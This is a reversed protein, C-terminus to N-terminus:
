LSVEVEPEPEPEAEVAQESEPQQRVLRRRLELIMAPFEHQSPGGADPARYPLAELQELRNRVDVSARQQEEEKEFQWGLKVAVMHSQSKISAHLLSQDSEYKDLVGSTLLLLVVTRTDWQAADKDGHMWTFADGLHYKINDLMERASTENFIVHVKVTTHLGKSTPRIGKATVSADSPLVIKSRLCLERMMAALEYDRRRYTVAKDLYTNVLTCIDTELQVHVDKGSTTRIVIDQQAKWQAKDFPSFREDEEIVLQVPKDLRIAERMEKRCYESLLYHKSLIVVFIDSHQVGSLMGALTLDQQRVDLWTHLGLKQYEHFLTSAVGSSDKQAHSLFAHYRMPLRELTATQCLFPHALMDSVSPRKKADGKLCRRILDKADAIKSLDADSHHLVPVLEEDSITNWTCLRIKDSFEVLQDNSTDQAFLSRGSCLEFLIVGLSWVDFKKALESDITQSQVPQTVIFRALEPPAYASIADGQSIADGKAEYISAISITGTHLDHSEDMDCVIWKEGNDDPNSRLVNRQKLDAHLINSLHLDVVCHLIDRFVKTVREIDYGALREKACTDHLSREGRQLVLVYPYEDLPDATSTSSPCTREPEEQQEDGEQAVTQEPPMHWAIIEVVSPGLDHALRRAIEKEFKCRDKMLKLCVDSPPLGSISGRSADGVTNRYYLEDTAYHVRAAGSTHVPPGPHVTYRQLFSNMSRAWTRISRSKSGGTIIDRLSRGTDDQLDLGETSQEHREIARVLYKLVELDAKYEVAFDLAHRGSLTLSQRFIATAADTERGRGLSDRFSNRLAEGGSRLLCTHPAADVLIQVARVSPRNMLVNHLALHGDPDRESCTPKDVQDVDVLLQLVADSVCDRSAYHLPLQGKQDRVRCAAPFQELLLQVVKIGGDAPMNKIALHLPLMGVVEEPWECAAPYLKLLQEITQDEQQMEIALHLPLRGNRGPAQLASEDAKILCDIVEHEAKYKIALHLARTLADRAFMDKGREDKRQDPQADCAEKYSVAIRVIIEKAARRHIALHLPLFGQPDREHCAEPAVALLREFVTEPAKKYIALHLPLFGSSGPTVFYGRPVNQPNRLSELVTGWDKGQIGSSISPRLMPNDHQKRRFVLGVPRGAEKFLKDGERVTSVDVVPCVGQPNTETAWRRSIIYILAMGACIGASEAVTGKEVSAVIPWIFNIGIEGPVPFIVSVENIALQVPQLGPVTAPSDAGADDLAAAERTASANAPPVAEEAALLSVAVRSGLAAEQQQEPEPQQM